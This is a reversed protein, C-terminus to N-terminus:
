FVFKVINSPKSLNPYVIKGTQPDIYYSESGYGGYGQNQPNSRDHVWVNYTYAVAYLTDGTAIPYPLSPITLKYFNVTYGGNGDPTVFINTNALNIIYDSPSVTNNKGIFVIFNESMQQYQLSSTDLRLGFIASAYNNSALTFIDPATKVPIQMMIIYGVQTSLTGGGFHSLGFVKMTGYGPKQFSLDYTGTSIGAFNYNGTADTTDKHQESGSSLTVVVGSADSQFFSFEDVLSLNGIISATDTSSGKGNAGAPGQPGAPGPVGQEKTCSLFTFLIALYFIHKRM